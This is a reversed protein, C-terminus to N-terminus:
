RPTQRAMCGAVLEHHDVPLFAGFDDSNLSFGSTCQTPQQSWVCLAGPLEGPLRCSSSSHQWAPPAPVMPASHATATPPDRRQSYRTHTDAAESYDEAFIYTHTFGERIPICFDALWTKRKPRKQRLHHGSGAKAQGGGVCRREKARACTRGRGWWGMATSGKGCAATATWGGNRKTNFSTAAGHCFVAEGVAPWIAAARLHLQLPPM